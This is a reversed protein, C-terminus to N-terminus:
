VEPQAQLVEYSKATLALFIKPTPTIEVVTKVKVVGFSGASQTRGVPILVGTM